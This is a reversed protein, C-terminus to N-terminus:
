VRRLERSNWSESRPRRPGCAEEAGTAAARWGVSTLFNPTKQLPATRRTFGRRGRQFNRWKWAGSSRRWRAPGPSASSAATSPSSGSGAWSCSAFCSGRRGWTGSRLGVGTPSRPSCGRASRPSMSRPGPTRMWPMSPGNCTRAAPNAGSCRACSPTPPVGGEAIAGALNALERDLRALEAHLRTRQAEPSEATPDPALARRLAETIVEPNLLLPELYSLVASDTLGMPLALTNTCLPGRAAATSCRYVFKRRVGGSSRVTLGSGCVGCVAMGTLLYASEVGNIPKGWLRGATARLYVQQAQARRAQVATWLDDEIIRLAPVEVRIQEEAPRPSSRKRGAADRKRTRGYIVVGRYLENKLVDRLTIPSWGAPGERLGRAPRPRPAPCGEENLQKALARFGKGTAAYTRFIRQLVAAESENIRREVHSRRDGNFVEVNDYGFVRGGTVYGAKAKRYLADATRQRAKEREMETAFNRVQEMFKSTPDTLNPERRELYYAVGCGADALQSLVYGSKEM